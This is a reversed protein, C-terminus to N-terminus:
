PETLEWMRSEHVSTVLSMSPRKAADDGGDSCYTRYKSDLFDVSDAM